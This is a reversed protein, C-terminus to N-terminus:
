IRRSVAQLGLRRMRWLRVTDADVELRRVVEAKNLGDAAAPVIRARLAVPRPTRHARVLGQLARREEAGVIVVPPHTCM